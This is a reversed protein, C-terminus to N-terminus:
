LVYKTYCDPYGAFALFMSLESLQSRTQRKGTETLYWQSDQVSAWKAVLVTDLAGLLVREEPPTSFMRKAWFVIEGRNLGPYRWLVSLVATENLSM